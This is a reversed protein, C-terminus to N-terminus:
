LLKLKYVSIVFMAHSWGLPMVGRREDDFLQEPIVEVQIRDMEANFTEQAPLTDGIEHRAIAYWFTLLPWAGAGQNLDISQKLLGDYVDGKFRKIGLPSGLTSQIRDMTKKLARKNEVVSFPWVVGLLSADINNSVHEGTRTLEHTIQGNLTEAMQQAVERWEDANSRAVGPYNGAMRLGTSCAAMTYLFTTHHPAISMHEWLDNTTVSFANNDWTRVLGDAIKTVAQITTDSSKGSCLSWLLTGAQDPQFADGYWASAGNTAYRRFFLGKSDLSEARELLWLSFDDRKDVGLLLLAYLIFAADRPWVYRYDNAQPPYFKSDTNAAVIAGNELVCDLLVTKSNKLLREIKQSM